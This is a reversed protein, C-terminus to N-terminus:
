SMQGGASMAAGTEGTMDPADTAAREPIGSTEGNQAEAEATAAKLQPNKGDVKATIDMGGGMMKDMLFQAAEPALTLLQALDINVTAKYEVPPPPPPPAQIDFQNANFGALVNLQAAMAVYDTPVNYAKRFEAIQLTNQAKKYRPTSGQGANIVIDIDFDLVSLDIIERGNRITKPLQTGANRAAIKLITEDTEFAITLQFILWLVPKFFTQNRLMLNVGLKANSDQEAMQNLGLGKTTGKLSLQRSRDTIGMPVLSAIDQSRADDLRMAELLGTPYQIFEVEDKEARFVRANLVQDIDVNTDPEIRVKGGQAIQKAIDNANNRHDSLEDEIPAIVEPFGVGTADWLRSKLYGVVIPLKNVPRGNFFVDNVPKFTSLIFTGSLSFQVLWEFGQKEFFVMLEARNKDGLDVRQRDRSDPSPQLNAADNGERIASLKEEIDEATFDADFVGKEKYSMIEDSTIPIMIGAFSGLNVDLYPIKPDWFVDRRPMLRDITWTDKVIFTQENPLVDFEFQDKFQEYIEPPVEQGNIMYRDPLPKKYSEHQWHVFAAELGDTAGSRLSAEQWIHYPSTNEKRYIFDETLIQAYKDRAPSDPTRSTCSIADPDQNYELIANEVYGDVISLSKTSPLASMGRAERAAADKLIMMVRNRNDDITPKLHYDFWSDFARKLELARGTEETDDVAM